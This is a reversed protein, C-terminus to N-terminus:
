MVLSPQTQYPGAAHSSKGGVPIDYSQVSAAAFSDMAWSVVGEKDALFSTATDIARERGFGGNRSEEM